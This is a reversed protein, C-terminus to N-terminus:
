CKETLIVCNTDSQGIKVTVNDEKGEAGSGGAARLPQAAPHRRLPLRQRVVVTVVLLLEPRLVVRVLEVDVLRAGEAAHRELADRLAVLCTKFDKPPPIKITQGAAFGQTM